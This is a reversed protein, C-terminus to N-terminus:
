VRYWGSTPCAIVVASGDGTIAIAQAGVFKDYYALLLGATTDRLVFATPDDNVAIGSFTLNSSTLWGDASVSTGALTAEDVVYASVASYDHAASFVYGVEVASLTLTDTDLNVLKLALGNRGENYKATM